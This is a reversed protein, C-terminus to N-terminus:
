MVEEVGGHALVEKNLIKKKLEESYEIINLQILTQPVRYDAFMTLKGVDTFKGYSEGKFAGWLDGVLIQARKYFLIQEGDYIAHDQLNRFTKTM